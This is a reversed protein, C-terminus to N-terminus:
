MIPICCLVNFISQSVKICAFLAQSTLLLSVGIKKRYIQSDDKDLNSQFVGSFLRRSLFGKYLLDIRCLLASLM